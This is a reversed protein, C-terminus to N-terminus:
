GSIFIGTLNNDIFITLLDKAMELNQKINKHDPSESDFTIWYLPSKPNDPHYLVSHLYVAEFGSQYRIPNLNLSNELNVVSLTEFDKKEVKLQKKVQIKLNNATYNM